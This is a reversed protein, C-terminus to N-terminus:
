LEASATWGYGTTVTSYFYFGQFGVQLNNATVSVSMSPITRMPVPFQHSMYTNSWMANTAGTSYYRQCLSMELSFFRREFPTAVAGEELQVGTISFTAGLTTVPSVSGSVFLAIGSGWTNATANFTSGYGLAFWLSAAKANTWTGSTAGPITITKYQWTNAATITYTAPYSVDDAGSRMAVVFTGTLSSRVWFSLTVTKANATGWAMDSWNINEIHQVLAYYDGSALTVASATTILLSHTFGTPPTTTSQQFTLKSGTSYAGNWRDLHYATVSPTVAAGSNRQDIRMDGNIIRNRMGLSAASGMRSGDAFNVTNGLITGSSNGSLFGVGISQSLVKSTTM